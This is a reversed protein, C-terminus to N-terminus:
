SCLPPARGQPLQVELGAPLPSCYTDRTVTVAVFYSPAVKMAPGFAAYFAMVCLPCHFKAEGQPADPRDPMEGMAVQSGAQHCLPVALDMSAARAASVLPWLATWAVCLAAIFAVIRRRRIMPPLRANGPISGIPHM